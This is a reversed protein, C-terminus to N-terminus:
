RGDNEKLKLERLIWAVDKQIKKIKLKIEDLDIEIQNLQSRDQNM